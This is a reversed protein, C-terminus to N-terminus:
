GSTGLLTRVYDGLEGWLLQEIYYERGGFVHHCPLQVKKIKELIAGQESMNIYNEFSQIKAASMGDDKIPMYIYSCFKLLKDIKKLSNGVDIVLIEYPTNAMIDELLKLVDGINITYLDDPCNVPPIYDLNQMSHIIIPLKAALNGQKQFYFADSLNSEFSQNMLFDFGSFEEFNLYLVSKSQSLLQGLILSFSTKLCRGLPSYVGIIEASFNRNKLPIDDTFEAECGAMVERILSESSQYKYVSDYEGHPEGESLIVIKKVNAKEIEECLAAKSILLIDIVSQSAYAVLSEKSTFAIVKFPINGRANLYSTLRDGYSIEIDYVALVARLCFEGKKIENLIYLHWIGWM